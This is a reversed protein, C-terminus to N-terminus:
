PHSSPQPRLLRDPPVRQRHRQLTEIAQRHGREIAEGQQVVKLYEEPPRPQVKARLREMEEERILSLLDDLKKKATELYNVAKAQNTAAGQNSGGDIDKEAQQQPNCASSLLAGYVTQKTMATALDATAKTVNQQASKLDKADGGRETRAQVMKQDHIVKDLKNLFQELEEREIRLRFAVTDSRLIALISRCKESM